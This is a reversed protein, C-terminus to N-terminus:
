KPKAKPMPDKGGGGGGGMGGAFPNPIVEDDEVWRCGGGPFMLFRGTPKYEPALQAATPMPTPYRRHEEHYRRLRASVLPTEEPRIYPGCEGKHGGVSAVLWPGFLAQSADAGDLEAGGRLGVQGEAAAEAPPMGAASELVAGGRGGRSHAGGKAPDVGCFEALAASASEAPLLRQLAASAEAASAANSARTDSATVALKRM